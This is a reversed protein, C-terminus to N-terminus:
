IKDKIIHRIELMYKGYKEMTDRAYEEFTSDKYEQTQNYAVPDNKIIEESLIDVGNGWINIIQNILIYSELYGYEEIIWMVISHFYEYSHNFNVGDCINVIYYIDDNFGLAYDMIKVNTTLYTFLIIKLPNSSLENAFINRIKEPVVQIHSKSHITRKIATRCMIREKEPVILYINELYIWMIILIDLHRVFVNNPYFDFLYCMNIDEVSLLNCLIKVLMKINKIDHDYIFYDEIYLDGTLLLKEYLICQDNTLFEVNGRKEQYKYHNFIEHSIKSTPYGNTNPTQNIEINAENDLPDYKLLLNLETVIKCVLPNYVVYNDDFLVDLIKYCDSPNLKNFFKEYTFYLNVYIPYKQLIIDLAEWYKKYICYNIVNFSNQNESIKMEEYDKAVLDFFEFEETENNITFLIVNSKKIKQIFKEQSM